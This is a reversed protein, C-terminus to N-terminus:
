LFYTLSLKIHRPFTCTKDTLTFDILSGKFYVYTNMEELILPPSVSLCVDNDGNLCLYIREGGECAPLFPQKKLDKGYSQRRQQWSVSEVVSCQRAQLLLASCLVDADTHLPWWHFHETIIRQPYKADDQSRKIQYNKLLTKM